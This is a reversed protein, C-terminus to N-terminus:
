AQPEKGKAGSLRRAIDASLEGAAEASVSEIYLSLARGSKAPRVFARAGGSELVIDSGARLGEFNESMIAPLGKPADLTKRTYVIKPLEAAAAELSIGRETVYSTVEAILELPDCCFLSLEGSGCAGRTVSSRSEQALRDCVLPARPPLVVSKRKLFYSRCCLIVLDEYSIVAEETLASVTRRDSAVSFTVSEGEGVSFAKKFVEAERLCDTRITPRIKPEKPMLAKLHRIYLDSAASGDTMVAASDSDLPLRNYAQETKREQARPLDLTSASAFIIGGEAYVFHSCGLKRACFVTEGFGAGRIGYVGTGASRLGLSVAEFGDGCGGVTIRDANLATGAACGFRFVDRLGSVGLVEGGEGFALESYNGSSIDTRVIAGDPIRTRPAVRVGEEVTVDSGVVCDEGLASFRKMILGKGATVGRCVVAECIEAGAGISARESILSALIRSGSGVAAGDEIVTGSSVVADKGVSAGGIVLKSKGDAGLLETQCKILSPIDGIDYWYSDDIYAFLRKGEALLQPFVDQAFDTKEGEPIRRMVEKSIVYVGTNALDTLCEDYGPKELFGTIRQEKGVTILGYERPDDVKKAVITVDAGSSRHFEAVARYDVGCVGDGSLVLVDGGNWASRVCGATGLPTEERRYKLYVGCKQPGLEEELRDARFHTCLVASRIGCARLRKLLREIASEGLIKVLPKPTDSTLPRLRTGEGGALIVTQM